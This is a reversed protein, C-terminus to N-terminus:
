ELQQPHMTSTNAPSVQVVRCIKIWFGNTKRTLRWSYYISCIAVNLFLLVGIIQGIYVAPSIGTITLIISNTFIPIVDLFIDM